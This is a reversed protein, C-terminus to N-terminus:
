YGDGDRAAAAKGRHLRFVTVFYVVALPAGISFWVLATRLGDPDGGANRTTLSFADGGMARLLVPFACAATAGSLGAVFACSGLFAAFDRGRSLGALALVLGALAVAGLLWAVPRASLAPFFSPNVRLTAATVVPWLVAVAAFLRRGARRSREQVTGDSKWTLYTGGHGTLAALAFLGVLLTYWDFIGVPERASFDTFLTLSFWGDPGLPLGRLLNGLAAGLFLSLLASAVAFVVDWSGRWLPDAVHSRLEISIGRLVLCWLVLFIALYFGSVGASLVRPFAVFLVGGSAILWVENGDWFPGIAALVQRRETDTRAVLLHLVGAGFDFGDLVVFATLMAAAIAYWVDAMLRWRAASAAPWPRRPGM